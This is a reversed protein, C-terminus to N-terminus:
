LGVLLDRGARDANEWWGWREPVRSAVLAAPCIVVARCGPNEDRYTLEFSNYPTNCHITIAPTPRTPPPSPTPASPDAHPQLLRWVRRALHRKLCRLAERRSKGQVCSRPCEGNPTATLTRKLTADVAFGGIEGLEGLPHQPRGYPIGGRANTAIWDRILDAAQPARNHPSRRREHPLRCRAHRRAARDRGPHPVALIRRFRSISSSL